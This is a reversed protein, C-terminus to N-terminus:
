KIIRWCNRYQSIDSDPVGFSFMDGDQVVKVVYKGHVMRPDAVSIHKRIREYPIVLFNECPKKEDTHLLVFVYFPRRPATNEFTSKTIFFQYKGSTSSSTKVQFHHCSKANRTAVLDIGGDICPEHVVYGLFSLRSAVLYEGGRGICDLPVARDGDSPNQPSPRAASKTPKAPVAPPIVYNPNLGYWGPRTNVFASKTKHKNIDDRLIAEMCRYITTETMEILGSKMAKDAIDRHHLGARHKGLISFAANRFSRSVPSSKATHLKRPGGQGPDLGYHGASPSMFASAAGHEEISSALTADMYSHITKEDLDILRRNMAINAIEQIHTPSCERLIELAADKFAEVHTLAGNPIKRTLLDCSRWTRRGAM